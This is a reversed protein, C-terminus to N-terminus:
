GGALTPKISLHRKEIAKERKRPLTTTQYSQQRNTPEALRKRVEAKKRYRIESPTEERQSLVHYVLSIHCWYQVRVLVTSSCLPRGVISTCECGCLERLVKPVGILVSGSLLSVVVRERSIKKLRTITSEM